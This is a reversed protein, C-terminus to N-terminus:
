GQVTAPSLPTLTGSTGVSFQSITNSFPNTTYIYKGTPTINVSGVQELPLGGTPTGATLAPLAVPVIQAGSAVGYNRVFLTKGDPSMAAQQYGNETNTGPVVLDKILSPSAPTSISFEGVYYETVSYAITGASNFFYIGYPPPSFNQQLKGVETLSGDANVGFTLFDLNSSADKGWGIARNTGPIVSVEWPTVTGLTTETNLPTLGSSSVTYVQVESQPSAGASYLYAGTSDLSLIPITYLPATVRNLYTLSGNSGVKFEDIYGSSIGIAQQVFLLSGDKSFCFSAVASVQGGQAYLDPASVEEVYSLTGNSGISFVHVGQNNATYLFTGASNVISAFPYNYQRAGFLFECRNSVIGSETDTAVVQVNIDQLVGSYTMTFLGTSSVNGYASGAGEFLSWQVTTPSVLVVQGKANLCEVELQQTQGTQLTGGGPQGNAANLLVISAITDGMTVTVQATQGSVITAGASGTAQAVGTGNANPYASATLTVSGPQLGTFSVTTSLAGKTPRPLTQTGLVAGTSSTLVAVISNSDYPILRSRAPWNIQLALTGMQGTSAGTPGAASGGCGVVFVILGVCVLWVLLSKM